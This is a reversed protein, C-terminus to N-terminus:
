ATSLCPTARKKRRAESFAMQKRSTLTSPINTQLWSQVDKVKVRGFAKVIEGPTTPKLLTSFVPLLTTFGGRSQHGEIRKYSGFSSELIETSLPLREQEGLTKEHERIYNVAQTLIKRSSSDTALSQVAARLDASAGRYIGHRNSFQLCASIVEQCRKWRKVECKYECVWGLKEQMRETTVNRRANSQPHGVQWQIMEFWKLHKQLNMFRSKRNFSPPAFHAMETQQVASITQHIRETYNRFATSPAVEAELANALLHKLDRLALPRNKGSKLTSIAERLNKAGDTIIARPMGHRKALEEYLVAVNETTWSTAPRFALVRVDKQSLPKESRNFKKPDVALVALVKEKGIQVTEDVLWVHDKLKGITDIRAVGLRQMWTRITDKSPLRVKTGLWQFFHRLATVARRIGIRTALNVSLQITRAGFQQGSVPPDIPLVVRSQNLNAQALQQQLQVVKARLSCCEAQLRKKDDNAQKLQRRHQQIERSRRRYRERHKRRSHYLSRLLTPLPSNCQARFAPWSTDV